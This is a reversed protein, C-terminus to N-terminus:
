QVDCTIGYAPIVQSTCSYVTEEEAHDDNDFYVVAKDVLGKKNKNLALMYSSDETMYFDTLQYLSFGRYQSYPATEKGAYTGDSSASHWPENWQVRGNAFTTLEAKHGARDTCIYDSAFVSPALLSTFVLISFKM